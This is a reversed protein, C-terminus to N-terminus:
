SREVVTKQVTRHKRPRRPILALLDPAIEGISKGDLWRDEWFLASTGDGLSMKTSANFVWHEETFHMDLWRWAMTERVLRVVLMAASTPSTPSARTAGDGVPGVHRPLSVM